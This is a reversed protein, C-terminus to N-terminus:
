GSTLQKWVRQQGVSQTVTNPLKQKGARNEPRDNTSAKPNAKVWEKQSNYSASSQQWMTDDTASREAGQLRSNRSSNRQPNFPEPYTGPNTDPEIRIQETNGPAKSYKARNANDVLVTRYEAGGATKWPDKWEVQLLSHITNTLPVNQHSKAWMTKGSKIQPKRNTIFHQNKPAPPLPWTWQKM